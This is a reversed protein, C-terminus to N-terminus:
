RLLLTLSYVTKLSLLDIYVSTKHWEVIRLISFFIVQMTWCELESENVQFM